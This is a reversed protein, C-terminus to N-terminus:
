GGAIRGPGVRIWWCSDGSGSGLAGKVVALRRFFKGGPSAVAPLGSSALEKNTLSGHITLGGSYVVMSGM